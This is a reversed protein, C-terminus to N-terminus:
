RTATGVWPTQPPFSVVDCSGSCPHCQLTMMCPNWGGFHLNFLQAKTGSM